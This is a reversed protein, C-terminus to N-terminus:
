VEEEGGGLEISPMDLVRLKAAGVPELRYTAVDGVCRREAKPPPIGMVGRYLGWGEIECGKAEVWVPPAGPAFVPDPLGVDEDLESRFVLSTPDIAISWASANLLQWDVAPAPAGALVANSDRYTQPASTTNTSPLSLAFLLAGHHVTFTDNARATTQVSASLTYTVESTGGALRIAHLSTSADPSVPKSAGNLAITSQSADAWSPVRVHFTITSDSTITYNLTNSFPYHTQCDIRVQGSMVSTTLNGPSLLMHAIDNDGVRAFSNSLFKPLGQPHNVTCCPYNAEVSYIQGSGGVNFFPNQDLEKSFGQNPQGVYQRAWWNPSMQAPLANFAIRESLDAYNNDGLAQYLYSLSYMTEVLTCTESGYYPALGALREDALIGGHAAAHYQFTWDVGRRTIDVLSDNQTLRRFVALAKLGQGANVGHEYPYRPGDGPETDLLNLDEKIFVGEQWWDAWNLSGDILIQMSEALKSRLAETTGEREWIWQLVILLDQVRVRGWTFEEPSLEDGEHWLYGSSDNRLMNVMLDVFRGTANVIPDEWTQPEAEVLQIMGLLLPYRAWFNRARGTEPGLWGDDAQRSLVSTVADAVQDKLRADNLSYALPVLGNLWYPFGENLGSYESSGGTWSSDAVYPYFDHEHGALGNAELVLQDRLWGSPKIAGLPLPRLVLPLLTANSSTQASATASLLAAAAPVLDRLKMILHHPDTYLLLLTLFLPPLLLLSSPAPRVVPASALSAAPLKRNSM